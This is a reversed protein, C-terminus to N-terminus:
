REMIVTYGNNYTQSSNSIDRCSSLIHSLQDATRYNVERPDMGASLVDERSLRRREYQCVHTHSQQLSLFNNFDQFISKTHQQTTLKM